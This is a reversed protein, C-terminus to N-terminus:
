EDYGSRVYSGERRAQALAADRNWGAGEVVKPYASNVELMRTHRAYKRQEWRGDFDFHVWLVFCLFSGFFSTIVGIGVSALITPASM